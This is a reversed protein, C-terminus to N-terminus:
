KFTSMGRQGEGPETEKTSACDVASIVRKSADRYFDKIKSNFELLGHDAEKDDLFDELSFKVPFVESVWHAKAAMM